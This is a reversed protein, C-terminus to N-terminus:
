PTWRYYPSQDAVTRPTLPWQTLAAQVREATVDGIVAVHVADHALMEHYTGLVDTATLAGLTTVDGLASMAQTPQGAFLLEQLRRNALYQKDDDLSKIATLLNQRQQTFTTPDFNGQPLLPAFLVSRLLAMGREFLPQDDQY